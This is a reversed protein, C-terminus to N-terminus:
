GTVADLRMSASRPLTAVLRNPACIIRGSARAGMKKCLQHRCSSTLVSLQGERLAFVTPGLLGPMEIRDFARHLSVQDYVQGDYEFTVVDGPTARRPEVSVLVAGPQPRARLEAAFGALAGPVGPTAPDVLRGDHLISVDQAAPQMPMKTIHATAPDLGLLRLLRPLDDAPRDTIMFSSATRPTPDWPAFSTMLPTLGALTLTKLLQRRNM